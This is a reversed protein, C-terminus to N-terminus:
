GARDARIPEPTFPSREVLLTRAHSGVTRLEELVTVIQQSALARKAEDLTRFELMTTTNPSSGDATRYGMFSVAGPAQLLRAIWAGVRNNYDNWNRV